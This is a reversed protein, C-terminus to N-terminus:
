EEGGGSGPLYGRPAHMAHRTAALIAAERLETPTYQCRVIFGYLLDVLAHFEADRLYREEPPMM